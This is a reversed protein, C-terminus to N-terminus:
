NNKPMKSLKQNDMAHHTNVRGAESGIEFSNSEKGLQNISLVNLARIPAAHLHKLQMNFTWVNQIRMYIRIINNRRRWEGVSEHQHRVQQLPAQLKNLINSAFIPYIIYTNIIYDGYERYTYIDYICTHFAQM